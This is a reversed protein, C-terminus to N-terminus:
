NRTALQECCQSSSSRIRIGRDLFDFKMDLSSQNFFNLRVMREVNELIGEGKQLQSELMKKRRLILLARSFDRISREHM